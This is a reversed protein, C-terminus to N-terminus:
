FLCLVILNCIFCTIEAQFAQSDLLGDSERRNSLTGHWGKVDTNAARDSSAALGTLVQVPLDAGLDLNQGDTDAEFCVPKSDPRSRESM